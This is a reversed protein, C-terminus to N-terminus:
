KRTFKVQHFGMKIAQRVTVRVGILSPDDVPNYRERSVPGPHVTWLIYPHTGDQDKRFEDYGLIFISYDERGLNGETKYYAAVGGGDTGCTGKPDRFEVIANQDLSSLPAVGLYGPINAKIYRCPYDPHPRYIGSEPTIEELAANPNQGIFHILGHIDVEGEFFSGDQDPHGETRSNVTHNLYGFQTAKFADIIAKRLTSSITSEESPGM